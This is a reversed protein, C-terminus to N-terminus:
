NQRNELLKQQIKLLRNELFHIEDRDKITGSQLLSSILLQASEDQNLEDLLVIQMDRAWFPFEFTDPLAALKQALQLALNLDRLQHKALLCAETMRRWHQQPDRQFLDDILDIMIRIKQPDDVQSYVRSALFAPYDSQPNLEYLTMLWQSLVHYDLQRYNVHQGKQNDHLQLKLLLLYSWLRDSGMALGQYLGANAPRSLQTFSPLLSTKYFHHYGLQLLLMLLFGTVIFVPLQNFSRQTTKM